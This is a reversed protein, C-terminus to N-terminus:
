KNLKQYNKYLSKKVFILKISATSLPKIYFQNENNHQDRWLVNLDIKNLQPGLIDILRYQSTPYYTIISRWGAADNYSITPIFDTIQSTSSVSNGATNDGVLNTASTNTTPTYEPRLGMLTSKFVLATPSWWHFLSVYEQTMRYYGSPISTDLTSTNSDHLNEVIMQFDQHNANNEGNYITLFNDFFYYLIDNFFIKIPNPLNVDYDAQTAYLSILGGQAANYLMYPAALGTLGPQLAVLANTANQFATNIMQIFAQYSFVAEGEEPTLSFPQYVVPVSAATIGPSIGTSGTLGADYSLTIFYTNDHFIFIPISSGDIEFRITSCYYDYPPDVISAALQQSFTCPVSVRSNNTLAINYYINDENSEGSGNIAYSM